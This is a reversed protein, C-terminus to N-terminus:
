WSKANLCDVKSMWVSISTSRQHGKPANGVGNPFLPHFLSPHAACSTYKYDFSQQKKVTVKVSRLNLDAHAYLKTFLVSLFPRIVLHQCTPLKFVQIFVHKRERKIIWTYFIFLACRVNITPTSTGLFKMIFIGCEANRELMTILVRVQFVISSLWSHREWQSVPHIGRRNSTQANTILGAATHHM